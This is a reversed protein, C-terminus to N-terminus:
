KSEPRTAPQGGGDQEGITSPLQRGDNFLMYGSLLVMLFVHSTYYWGWDINLALGAAPVLLLHWILSPFWILIAGARSAKPMLSRILWSIWIVCGILALSPYFGPEPNVFQFGTWIALPLGLSFMIAPIVRFQRSKSSVM